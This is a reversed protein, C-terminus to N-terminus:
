RTGARWSTGGATRAQELPYASSAAYAALHPDTARRFALYAELPSVAADDLAPDRL